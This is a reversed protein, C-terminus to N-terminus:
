LFLLPAIIHLLPVLYINCLIKEVEPIIKAEPVRRPDASLVGSVDTWIVISKSSLLKGFISASYDSGDRKLTAFTGDVTSAIFGTILLNTAKTENIFEKLLASSKDWLIEPDRPDRM